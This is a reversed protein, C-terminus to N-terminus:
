GQFARVCLSYVCQVCDYVTYVHVEVCVGVSLISGLSYLLPHTNVDARKSQM